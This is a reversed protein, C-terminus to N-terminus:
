RQWGLDYVHGVFTFRGPLVFTGVYEGGPPIPGGTVAVFIRRTAMKAAPEVEAWVHGSGDKERACLLRAGVPMEITFDVRDDARPFVQYRWVERRSV